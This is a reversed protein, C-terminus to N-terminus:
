QDLRMILRDLPDSLLHLCLCRVEGLRIGEPHQHQDRKGRHWECQHQPRDLEAASNVDAM